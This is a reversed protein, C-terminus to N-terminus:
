DLVIARKVDQIGRVMTM